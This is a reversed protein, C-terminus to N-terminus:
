FRYPRDLGARRGSGTVSVPEADLTPPQVTPSMVELLEGRDATPAFTSRRAGSSCIFSRSSNRRSRTRGPGGLVGVARGGPGAGRGAIRGGTAGLGTRGRGGAAEGPGGRWATAGGAGGRWAGGAARRWGAAAGAEGCVPAAGGGPGQASGKRACAPVGAVRSGSRPQRRMTRSAVKPRTLSPGDAACRWSASNSAVM